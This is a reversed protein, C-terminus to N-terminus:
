DMEMRMMYKGLSSSIGDTESLVDSLTLDSEFFDFPLKGECNLSVYSIPRM